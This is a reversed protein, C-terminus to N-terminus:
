KTRKKGAVESTKYFCFSINTWGVTLPMEPGKNKEITSKRDTSSM